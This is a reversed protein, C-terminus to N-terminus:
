SGSEILIIVIVASLVFVGITAMPFSFAARRRGTMALIVSGVQGVLLLPLGIFYSLWYAAYAIERTAPDSPWVAFGLGLPSMYWVFGIVLAVLTTILHFWVFLAVRFRDKAQVSLEQHTASRLCVHYLGFAVLTALSWAEDAAYEAIKCASSMVEIFRQCPTEV